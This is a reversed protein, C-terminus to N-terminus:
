TDSPNWTRIGLAKDLRDLVWELSNSQGITNRWGKLAHEIESARRAKGLVIVEYQDDNFTPVINSGASGELLGPLFPPLRPGRLLYVEKTAKLWHVGYLANPDSRLTWELGFTSEESTQRRGESYFERVTMTVSM